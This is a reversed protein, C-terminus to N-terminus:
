KSVDAALVKVLEEAIADASGDWILFRKHNILPFEAQIKAREATNGVLLPLIVTKKSQIERYVASKLEAVAFPKRVFSPSLVVLVYQCGSLGENMGQIISDGWGLEDADYWYSIGRAEMARVMPEAISPKDESAHCLFIDKRSAMDGPTTLLKFTPDVSALKEAYRVYVPHNQGKVSRLFELKGRIVDAIKGKRSQAHSDQSRYRAWHEGETALPGHKEWAHIIARIHRVFKRRVNPLRNVTLGTVEQHWNSRQLMAKRDNVEFGNQEIVAALEEGIVTIPRGSTEAVRALSSPFQSRTTSFTLDDAYRSYTCQYRAALRQLKSDLKACIMNSVIPSTPAGQPLQNEFCCIQAIVTAAREPLHYPIGMLMGRVRGFNISGFFNALDVNLVFRRRVHLRANQVISVGRVFGYVPAKRVYVEQLVANLKSQLIKLSRSPEMITRAGGSRKPIEFRRYRWSPHSRYLIYTLLAYDIELLRSVDRPTKLSLFQDRFERPDRVLTTKPM